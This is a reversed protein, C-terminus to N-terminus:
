DQLVVTARSSSNAFVQRGPNPPGLPIIIYGVPVNNHGQTSGPHRIGFTLQYFGTECEDEALYAAPIQACGFSLYPCQAPPFLYKVWEKDSFLIIFPRNCQWTISTQGGTGDFQLASGNNEDRFGFSDSYSYPNSGPVFNYTVRIHNPPPGGRTRRKDQGKRKGNTNEAAM